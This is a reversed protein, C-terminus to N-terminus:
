GKTAWVDYEERAAQAADTIQLLQRRGNSATGAPEISVIRWGSGSLSRELIPLPEAKRDNIGGFRVVLTADVKSMKAINQWVQKLQWAFEDPSSHSLQRASSYTVVPPGGLFWLRLWQDPIYTRLGYYPPSTIIWSAKAGTPFKAYVDPDRSDGQIVMGGARHFEGGYYRSAREGVVKLVDVKPPMLGRTQWYRVAYSPKPAYTRPSQNALYSPRSKPQPGHLAGLLIARLARRADSQTNQLLGERLRCLTRLVERDFALAWFEGEPVNQAIPVEDLICQAAHVIAHAPTNALKAGAIAVAVPSSDIGISPLGLIRSAYNTTGRGCYPDLVWQGCMAHESLIRYPFDLPFMTFYPCIGNLAARHTSATGALM